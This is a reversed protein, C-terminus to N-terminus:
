DIQDPANKYVLYVDRYLDALAKIQRAYLTSKDKLVEYSLNIENLRKKTAKRNEKISISYLDVM